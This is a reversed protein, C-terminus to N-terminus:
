ESAIRVLLQPQFQRPRVLLILTPKVEGLFLRILHKKLNWAQPVNGLRTRIKVVTGRVFQLVGHLAHRLMLQAHIEGHFIPCVDNGEQARQGALERLSHSCRGLRKRPLSKINM